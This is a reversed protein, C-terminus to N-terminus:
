KSEESEAPKAYEWGVTCDKAWGTCGCHWAYVVGNEYKAFYRYSWKDCEDHKVLIPTGVEVESWDVEPEKCEKEDEALKAYNWMVGRGETSWSTVGNCWAYVKGNEYKAFHRKSWKADEFDRVLIPTDMPVKSWDVKPTEPKYEEAMWLLMLRCCMKCDTSPCSDKKLIKPKIFKTCLEEANYKKLEDAYKEYNKM